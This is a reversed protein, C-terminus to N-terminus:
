TPRFCDNGLACAVEELGWENGFKIDTRAGLQKLHSVTVVTKEFPLLLAYVLPVAGDCDEINICVKYENVLRTIINNLGSRAAAHIANYGCSANPKAGNELLLEATTVHGGYLALFLPTTGGEPHQDDVNHGNQLLNLVAHDWGRAAFLGLPTIFLSTKKKPKYVLRGDPIQEVYDLPFM